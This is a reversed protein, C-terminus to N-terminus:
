LVRQPLSSDASLATRQRQGTSVTRNRGIPEVVGPNRVGSAEQGPYLRTGSSTAIIRAPDPDIPLRISRGLSRERARVLSALTVLIAAGIMPWFWRPGVRAAELTGLGALLVGALLVTWAVQRHTWGAIVARQFFHCRHPLWWPEGRLVRALLTWTADAIFLGLGLAFAGLPIDHRIVGILAFGGFASGLMLSGADGLFITAPQWNWCLFAMAAAALGWALLAELTADAMLFWAGFTVGAVVAQGAAIGDIGDMFNYLNTLWVMWLLALVLGVRDFQITFGFLDVGSPWGVAMLFMFGAAVQFALRVPISVGRSDELWGVATLLGCTAALAVLPISTLNFGTAATLVLAGAIFTAAIALGGGLPTPVQHSSRFNPHDVFGARRTYDRAIRVGLWGVIFSAVVFAVRLSSDASDM